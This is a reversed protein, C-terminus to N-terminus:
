KDKNEGTVAVPVETAKVMEINFEQGPSLVLQSGKTALAAAGGAAAGVAAGVAAGKAKNKKSTLAGIIGGVVAGGGVKAEDSIKDPAAEMVIPQTEITHSMGNIDIVREFVLTMRARGKTRHPEEVQTLRGRVEAGESILTLGEIVIPQTLTATFQDGVTNSDTRLPTVLSVALTTGAPIAINKTVVPPPTTQRPKEPKKTSPQQTPPPVPKQQAIKLTEQAVDAPVQAPPEAAVSKQEATQTQPTEKGGSSCGALLAATLLMAVLVFNKSTKM